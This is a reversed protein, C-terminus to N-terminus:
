QVYMVGSSEFKIVKVRSPNTSTLTLTGSTGSKPRGTLREFVVQTATPNLSASLTTNLLQRTELTTQTGAVPDRSFSTWSSSGFSMGYEKNDTVTRANSQMKRLQVLMEQAQGDYKNGRDFGALAFGLTSVLAIISIIVVM